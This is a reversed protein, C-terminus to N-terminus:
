SQHSAWTLIFLLKTNAKNHMDEIKCSNNKETAVFITADTTPLNHSVDKFHIITKMM